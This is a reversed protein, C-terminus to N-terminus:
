KLNLDFWEFKYANKKILPFCTEKYEGTEVMHLLHLLYAQLMITRHRLAFYKWSTRRIIFTEGHWVGSQYIVTFQMVHIDTSKINCICPGNQTHAWGILTSM